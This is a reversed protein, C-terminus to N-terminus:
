TSNKKPNATENKVLESLLESFVELLECIEFTFQKDSKKNVLWEGFCVRFGGMQVITGKILESEDMIFRLSGGLIV